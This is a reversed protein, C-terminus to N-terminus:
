PLLGLRVDNAKRSSIFGKQLFIRKEGRNVKGERLGFIKKIWNNEELNDGKEKKSYINEKAM